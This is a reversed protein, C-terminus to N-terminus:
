IFTKFNVRTSPPVLVVLTVHVLVVLVNGPVVVPVVPLVIELVYFPATPSVVEVVVAVVVSDVVIAV